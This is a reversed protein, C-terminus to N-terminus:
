DGRRERETQYHLERAADIAAADREADLIKEDIQEQTLDDTDERDLGYYREYEAYSFGDPYNDNRM